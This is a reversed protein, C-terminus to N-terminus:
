GCIVCMRLGMVQLVVGPQLRRTTINSVREKNKCLRHSTVVLYTCALNVLYCYRSSYM